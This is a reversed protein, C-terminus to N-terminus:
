SPGVMIIGNGRDLSGLGGKLFGSKEGVKGTVKGHLRLHGQKQNGLTNLLMCLSLVRAKAVPEGMGLEPELTTGIVEWTNDGTTVVM